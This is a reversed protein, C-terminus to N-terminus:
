RDVITEPNRMAVAGPNDQNRSEQPSIGIQLLQMGPEARM